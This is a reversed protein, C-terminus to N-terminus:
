LLEEVHANQKYQEYQYCDKCLYGDEHRHRGKEAWCSTCLPLDKEAMVTLTEVIEAPSQNARLENITSLLEFALVDTMIWDGALGGSVNAESIGM